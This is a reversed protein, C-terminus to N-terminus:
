EMHHILSNSIYNSLDLKDEGPIHAIEFREKDKLLSVTADIGLKTTLLNVQDSSPDLSSGKANPIILIGKDAQCRTSIAYEIAIPDTPDIDDDVVIAMKLSPHNAFAALLANKSEGELRKHIQIIATLWNSGGDSLHVTQTSAVVNKIGEYLKAEVPLGMLLRHESYGPLIDHFIANNRFKIRELEFVPQQRKMDYTRLMEVMWEEATKDQLIRGEIIIESFAPVYLDSYDSKALSLEGRLLSNALNMEDFGYAAQYASAISIAPHVGVVVSVKLDEGHEKAFSYCKHLHRGEVMRIVMHTRDLRLFRHISSNQNGKEQDKAHVISSTIYHGADKEFHMVIPLDYLNTSSNERFPPENEITQEYLANSMSELIRSHNQGPEATRLALSFRKRTGLINTVVSMESGEVHEFLLAQKRDLKHSIAAVEFKPSVQKNITILNSHQELLQLFERLDPKGYRPPNIESDRNTM